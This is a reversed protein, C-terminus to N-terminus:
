LLWADPRPYAEDQALYILGMACRIYFWLGVLGAVGWGIVMMPIGLPSLILTITFILGVVGVIVGIIFWWITKWFTQILFQYHTAMRPGATGRNAYAIILGIFVTVLVTLAGIVYLAYVVAPLVRDEHPKSVAAPEATM